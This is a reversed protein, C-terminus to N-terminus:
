DEARLFEEPGLADPGVAGTGELRARLRDRELEFADLRESDLPEATPLNTSLPDVYRGDKMFRYDLHPGTSLGTSGVYGIVQGQSVNAGPRIGPAIRSLHAYSTVYRDGHRITVRRGYGGNWGARGVVGHGAAQVPTGVPAAYDVGNHPRVRRLIPHMRAGFGSTIRAFKLPSRLFRRKLSRGEGDYYDFREGDASFRYAEFLKKSTQLRVADLSVLRYSGDPREDVTFALDFCDEARLDTYFDVQAALVEAMAVTLAPDEGREAVSQWPSGQVCVEPLRRTTRVTPTEEMRAAFGGATRYVVIRRDRDLEVEFERFRGEPGFRFEYGTDPRLTRWSFIARGAETM